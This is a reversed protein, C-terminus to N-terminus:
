WRTASRMMEVALIPASPLAPPRAYPNIEFGDIPEFLLDLQEHRHHRPKARLLRLRGVLVRPQRLLDVRQARPEGIGFAGRLSISASRSSRSISGCARRRCARCSSCRLRLPERHAAHDGDLDGSLAIRDAAREVLPVDGLERGVDVLLHAGGDVRRGVAVHEPRAMRTASFMASSTKRRAAAATSRGAALQM